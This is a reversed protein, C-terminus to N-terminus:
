VDNTIFETTAAILQKVDSFRKEQTSGLVAIVIPHDVGIDVVIVLNGGALDTYGTKSGIIGAIGSVDQNTNNVHHLIGSESRIDLKAYPTGTFIGPHKRFVYDFLMAMDRATGHAGSESPSVDLGSENRFFTGTLGILRVRDNMQEVFLKKNLIPDTTTGGPLRAGATRALASAGDNSSAVLTFQLLKELTWQEGVALGTDGDALIDMPTIIIETGIPLSETAVHATMIKTVSALPLRLGGNLEFLKEHESVDWVYASKASLSIKKYPNEKEVSEVGSALDSKEGSTGVTALTHADSGFRQLAEIVRPGALFGLILVLLFLQTQKATLMNM